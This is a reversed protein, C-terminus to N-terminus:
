GAVRAPRQHRHRRAGDVTVNGADADRHGDVADDARLAEVLVDGHLRIASLRRRQQELHHDGAIEGIEELHAGLAPLSAAFQGGCPLTLPQLVTVLALIERSPAQDAAAALM